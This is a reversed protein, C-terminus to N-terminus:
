QELYANNVWIYEPNPLVHFDMFEPVAGHVMQARWIPFWIYADMITKQLEQYIEAREQRDAEAAGEGLLRDIEESDYHTWNFGTGINETSFVSRLEIPDAMRWRLGCIHVKGGHCQEVVVGAEVLNVELQIGLDRLQAQFFEWAAARDSYTPLDTLQLVLQEGDKDLFGDGDTDTWGADALMSSALEPDYECYDQVGEWYGFTAPTIPGYAVQYFDGFLTALATERDLAHCVAERVEINDFPPLTANFMWGTPMGPRDSTVHKLDEDNVLQEYQELEVRNLFQVEGLELAAMRATGEPIFQWTVSDLYAPGRHEFFAPGWTWDPNRAVTIHSQDVWEEFLFAGTGVADRAIGDNGLEELATPSHFYIGDAQILFTPNPESFHVTVTHEDVIETEEYTPGLRGQAVKATPCAEQAIIRDLNIQVAEANFPTGDHFTVDDRLNFTFTTFDDSIEWSEALYPYFEQDPGYFVLSDFMTKYQIDAISSFTCQHDLTEPESITAWSLDGGQKTDTPEEEEEPEEMVETEEAVEEAQPEDPPETAQQEAQQIDGGCAAVVVALALLMGTLWVVKRRIM